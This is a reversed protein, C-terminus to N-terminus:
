GGRRVAVGLESRELELLREYHERQEKKRGRDMALNVLEHPDEDLDYWEHDQDEFRADPGYLMPGAEGSLRDNPLGGGIGYYRAYKTRGDFFGRIAWRQQEVLTTHATGHQFLVHDRMSSAEGRLVPSQDVGLVGDPVPAGALGAITRLLDVHSSLADTTAGAPIGPGRAYLPVRMIEDYVFPGKSRLGHSGCMDGHDSTFVVITDDWVGNRELASLVTGLSEDALRHLEVYYDLHRLWAQEDDPPITGWMGHQQSHRWARQVAPKTTLDDEFNAPLEEVVRDYSRTYPPLVEDDDRWKSLALLQTVLDLEEPNAAQYEPQDIPFWMVDHPNVLAVTLFWPQSSQANADLWRAASDAIIPDFHVGTGAWGMWHQDNGEWDAYGYAEMDPHPGYTCHWKGLYSSRYGAEGLVHGITPLLPSLSTHWPFITNDVVGHQALHTGTMMTARSPSCPASHTWHSTMEVGEAMLRERWPLRVDAPLWGRSREQDSIVFLINTV